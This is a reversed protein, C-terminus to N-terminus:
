VYLEKKGIIHLIEGILSGRCRGDLKLLLSSPIICSGCNGSNEPADNLAKEAVVIELFNEDADGNLEIDVWSQLTTETDNNVNIFSGESQEDSFPTWIYPCVGGSTVNHWDIYNLFLERDEQAPIISNNLKHKCIDVSEKFTIKSTIALSYDDRINCFVHDFDETLSCDSGVVKWSKPDWTLIAGQWSNCPLGSLDKLDGDALVQINAVSGHFQTNEFGVGVRMELKTPINTINKDGAQGMLEGNVAAELRSLKLDLRVCIHYWYDLRPDQLEGMRYFNKDWVITLKTANSFTQLKMKMWEQSDKGYVSFFSVGDFRAQKVSLCLIFVDPLRVDKVLTFFSPSGTLQSTGDFIFVPFAASCHLINHLLLFLM